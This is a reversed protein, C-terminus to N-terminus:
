CAPTHQSSFITGRFESFLTAYDDPLPGDSATELGGKKFSLTRWILVTTYVVFPHVNGGKKSRLTSGKAAVLCRKERVFQVAPLM